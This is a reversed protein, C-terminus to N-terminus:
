CLNVHQLVWFLHCLSNVIIFHVSFDPSVQNVHLSTIHGPAKTVLLHEKGMFFMIQIVFLQCPLAM